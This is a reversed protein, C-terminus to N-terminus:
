HSKQALVNAYEELTTAPFTLRTVTGAAHYELLHHQNAEFLFREVLERNLFFLKWDLHELLKAGSPQHQKLYFAIYAFATIPMYAPAIRKKIAGQLVGFDRLTSLLGQAVRETTNESWATTTRGKEVWKALVKQVAVLTIDTIGQAQMPMLIETVADHLLVDARAAHLYLVRDLSAAPFRNRVLVVLAKTVEAEVLYRQRFVALIDKVRSRSAKAFVNERSIRDLNEPVTADVDWHSLLTKTDDLLASAKIIKSTYPSPASASASVGKKKIASRVAM